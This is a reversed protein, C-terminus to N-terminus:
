PLPTPKGVGSPPSSEVAVAVAVPAPAVTRQDQVMTLGLARCRAQAAVTYAQLDNNYENALHQRTAHIEAVITDHWHAATNM